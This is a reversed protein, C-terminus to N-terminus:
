YEKKTIDILATAEAKVHLLHKKYEIFNKTLQYLYNKYEKLTEDNSTLLNLKNDKSNAAAYFDFCKSSFNYTNVLLTQIENSFIKELTCLRYYNSVRNLIIKNKILKLDGTNKLLDFTRSNIFEPDFSATAPYREYIKNINVTDTKSGYLLRILSTDTNLKRENYIIATNIRSTDNEFDEILGKIYETEKKTEGLHERVNEAFYGMTVALFIMLFELFYEKWKKPNHHLDPHHHVEMTDIEKNTINLDNANSTNESNIESAKEPSGDTTEDDNNAPM